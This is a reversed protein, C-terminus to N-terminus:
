YQPLSLTRTYPSVAPVILGWTYHLRRSVGCGHTVYPLATLVLCVEWDARHSWPHIDQGRQAKGHGRMQYSPMSLPRFGPGEIM